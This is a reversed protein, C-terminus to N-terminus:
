SNPESKDGIDVGGGGLGVEGELRCEKGGGGLGGDGLKGGGLGSDEEGGGQRGELGSKGGAKPVESPPYAYQKKIIYASAEGAWISMNM